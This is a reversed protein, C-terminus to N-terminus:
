FFFDSLLSGWTTKNTRVSWVICLVRSDIKNPYLICFTQYKKIKYVNWGQFAVILQLWHKMNIKLFLLSSAELLLQWCSYRISLMPLLNEKKKTQLAHKKLIISKRHNSLFKNLYNFKELLNISTNSFLAMRSYFILCIWLHPMVEFQVEQNILVM